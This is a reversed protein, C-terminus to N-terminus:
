AKRRRFALMGGLLLLGASSPEPIVEGVREITINSFTIGNDPDDANTSGFTRSNAWFGIMGINNAIGSDDIETHTHLLTDGQLLSGTIEVSDLGIRSFAMVSFYETEPAFSYGDDSSSGLSDWEGTTGLFRGSTNPVTHKRVAIDESGTNVDFDIMYAPLSTYLPNVSSSSSSLDAALGADNFDAMAMRFASSRDTGVTAPTTFRATAILSEGVGLTQPAFTGHLGRGSTGTVLGLEGVAVEVSNGSTSNTSWWDADLAGTRTRDGDGWSDNIIIQACIVSPTLLVALWIPLIKKM